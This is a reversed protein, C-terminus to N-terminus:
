DMQWFFVMIILFYSSFITLMGALENKASSYHDNNNYETAIIGYINNFTGGAHLTCTDTKTNGYVGAGAGM